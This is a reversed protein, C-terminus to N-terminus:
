FKVWLKAKVGQLKTVYAKIYAMLENYSVAAIGQASVAETFPRLATVVALPLAFRKLPERPQKMHIVVVEGVVPDVQLSDVWLDYPYVCKGQM